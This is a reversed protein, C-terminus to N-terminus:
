AVAEAKAQQNLRPAPRPPRGVAVALKNGILETALQDSVDYERGQQLCFRESVASTEMKIKVTM